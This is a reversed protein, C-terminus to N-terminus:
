EIWGVGFLYELGEDGVFPDGEIDFFLDGPSPSPLTALGEASSFPLLEYPPPSPAVERARVQLRAQRRLRDLTQRGLRTTEVETSTSLQTMTHIGSREALKRAQDKRLNAVLSLHDDAERREQCEAAFSCVTCHEVPDPYVPEARSLAAIFRSRAAQLYAAYDSTRFSPRELNGLVLHVSQPMFGQVNEIQQAYCCLQLVADPRVHRALKTDEPEYSWSGLASETNVRALFDAHGRWLPGQDPVDLFAAQYIYEAGARMAELTRAVQEEIPADADIEVVQRGGARLSDLYRAEHALGRRSLVDLEPDARVPRDRVGNAVELSLETLHECCLFGVLDTASVVLRGDENRHM